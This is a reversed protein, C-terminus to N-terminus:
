RRSRQLYVVAGSLGDPYHRAIHEIADVIAAFDDTPFTPPVLVIGAHERRV